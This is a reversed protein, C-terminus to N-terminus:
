LNSIFTLFIIHLLPDDLPYHLTSIAIKGLKFTLWPVFEDLNRLSIQLAPARIDSQLAGFTKVIYRMEPYLIVHSYELLPYLFSDFNM